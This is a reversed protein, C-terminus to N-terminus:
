RCGAALAGRGLASRKHASRRPSRSVCDCPADSVVRGAREAVMRRVAAEQEAASDFHARYVLELELRVFEKESAAEIEENIIELDDAHVRDQPGWPRLDRLLAFVDRWAAYGYGLQEGTAWRRWLSELERLARLDPVALYVIPQKDEDAELEQEDVLELGQVKGVANAFANVSGRVEFM